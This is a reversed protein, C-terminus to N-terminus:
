NADDTSLRESVSNEKKRGAVVRPIGQLDPIWDIDSWDLPNFLNHIGEHQGSGCELVLYGHPRLRPLAERILRQYVELPDEQPGHLANVPEHERVEPQLSDHQQRPVYPPNSVIFDCRESFEKLDLPALWDGVKFDIQACVNNAEANRAAVQLAERSQDVAIIRARPIEHALAVAICGSGTGVDVILPTSSANLKLVTEVVHETEPRPILVEPTVRFQLGWFEQGGTIYQAPEGRRRREVWEFFQHEQLPSLETEPHAVLFVKEVQLVRQLLVEANLSPSPVEGRALIEKARSLAEGLNM